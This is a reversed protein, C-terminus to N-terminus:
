KYKQENESIEELFDNIGKSILNTRIGHEKAFKEAVSGKQCTILIVDSEVSNFPFCHNMQEINKHIKIEKLPCGAFADEAINRTCRPVSYYTLLSKGSSDMKNQPFRILTKGDKSFLVGNIDRFFPNDKDVMFKKLSPNTLFCGKEYEINEINPGLYIEEIICNAFALRGINKVGNGLNVTSLRICNRFANEGITHISDPINIESVNTLQCFSKPIEKLGKSIRINKLDYCAYFADEGIERITDPMVVSVINDMDECFHADIETVTYKGIREPITMVPSRGLYECICLTNDPNLEVAFNPNQPLAFSM